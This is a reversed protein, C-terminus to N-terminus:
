AKGASVVIGTVQHPKDKGLRNLRFAVKNRILFRVVLSDGNIEYGDPTGYTRILTGFTSGFSVGRGTRVRSDQLGIAEIQIVRNSKDLIFGYKSNGRKYVWRTFTVRDASGTSGTGGGGGKGGGGGANGGGPNGGGFGPNPSLESSTQRFSDPMSFDGISFDDDGGRPGRGGRGGQQPNAPAGGGTGGRAGGGSGVPGTSQSGVNIAQIELPSGFMSILKSGSDYLNVGVLRTEARGASNQATANGGFFVTTIALVAMLTSRQTM